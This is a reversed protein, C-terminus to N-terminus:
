NICMNMRKSSNLARTLTDTKKKNLLYHSICSFVSRHLYLVSTKPIYAIYLLLIPIILNKFHTEKKRKKNKTGIKRVLSYITLTKCANCFSISSQNSACTCWYVCDLRYAKRQKTIANSYLKNVCKCNKKEHPLKEAM